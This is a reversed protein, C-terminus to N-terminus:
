DIIKRMEIAVPEFGNQRYLSEAVGNGAVFGLAIVCFGHARALAEARALLLRGIGLRRRAQTVVLNEIFVHRRLEFPLYAGSVALSMSLYAVVQSEMVGVVQEGGWERIKQCEDGLCSAAIDRRIERPAGLALEHRNLELLLDVVADFDTERQFSRLTATM